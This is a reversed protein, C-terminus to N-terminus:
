LGQTPEQENIRNESVKFSNKPSSRRKDSIMEVSKGM